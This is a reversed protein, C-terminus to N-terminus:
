YFALSGVLNKNMRDYNRKCAYQEAQKEDGLLYVIFVLLILVIIAYIWEAALTGKDYPYVKDISSKVAANFSLAATLAVAQLIYTNSKYGVDKIFNTVLM